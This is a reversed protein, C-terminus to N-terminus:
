SQGEKGLMASVNSRVRAQIQEIEKAGISQWSMQRMVAARAARFVLAQGLITLVTLRTEAANPDTGRAIAVLRSALGLARKMFGDYLVAFEASPDQQERLILRAWASSAEGALMAVYADTLRHMQAVARAAAARKGGRAPNAELETEIQEVLAGLRARIQAVIHELAAHYLGSKGRFHYGILAQNVGATQAISRTSAADYGDRGFVEIAAALLAERTADGRSVATAEDTGM